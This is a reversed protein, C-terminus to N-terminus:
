RTGGTRFFAILDAIETDRLTPWARQQGQIEPIAVHNWLAAIVAAQSDFGDLATLDPAGTGGRGDLAHCTTCGKDRIYQRGRAASGTQGLYQVSALFAVINAMDGPELRPIEVGVERMVSTMRPAKNWLTAAFELLDRRPRTALDPARRGGRGNVSHCVICNKSEFLRRGAEARGPLIYVPGAPLERSASTLYAILDNLETSLFRPRDMDLTDMSTGMDASHNWLAAAIHIPSNGEESQDLPPGTVGGVASVQHCAVCGKELFIRRGRETDGVPEFYNVWFLFAILDGTERARLYPTAIGRASMQARMSPLHNWMAAGFQNASRPSPLQGLDPGVRGGLGNIAHCSSCGKDGFVRSGALVNQSPPAPEQAALPAGGLLGAVALSTAVGGRGRTPWRRNHIGRQQGHVSM